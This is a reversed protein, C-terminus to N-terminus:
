LPLMMVASVWEDRNLTVDAIKSTSSGIGNPKKTAASMKSM